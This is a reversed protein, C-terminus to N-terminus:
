QREQTIGPHGGYNGLQSPLGRSLMDEAREACAVLTKPCSPFAAFANLVYGCFETGYGWRCKAPIYRDTPSSVQFWNPLGLRITVAESNAAAGLVQVEIKRAEQNPYPISLGNRYVGYITVPNGEIGNGDHLWRMLARTSNDITMTVQSLDGDQSQEIPTFTFPFPYWTTLDPDGYPWQLEAVGDCIRAIVPPRTDTGRDLVIEVLWLFDAAGHPKEVQSKFSAPLVLAM